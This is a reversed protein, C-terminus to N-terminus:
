SHLANNRDYKALCAKARWCISESFCSCSFSNVPCIVRPIGSFLCYLVSSRISDHKFLFMHNTPIISPLPSCYVLVTCLLLSFSSFSPHPPRLLLPILLFMFPLLPGMLQHRHVVKHLLRRVNPLCCGGKRANSM